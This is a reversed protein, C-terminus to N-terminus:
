AGAQLIPVAMACPTEALQIRSALTQLTAQKIFPLVKFHNLDIGVLGCTPEDFKSLGTSIQSM